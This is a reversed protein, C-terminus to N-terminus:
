EMAEEAERLVRTRTEKKYLDWLWPKSPRGRLPEWMRHLLALGWEIEDEHVKPRVEEWKERIERELDVSERFRREEWLREAEKALRDLEELERGYKSEIEHIRWQLWEAIIRALFERDLEKLRLRYEKEGRAAPLPVM